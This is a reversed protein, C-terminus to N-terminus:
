IVEHAVFDAAVDSDGLTEAVIVFHVYLGITELGAGGVGLTIGKIVDESLFGNQSIGSL